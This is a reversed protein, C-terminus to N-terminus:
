SHPVYWDAELLSQTLYHGHGGKPCLCVIRVSGKLHIQLAGVGHSM